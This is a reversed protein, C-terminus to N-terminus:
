GLAFAIEVAFTEGPALTRLGTEEDPRNIADTDHSVPEAAFYPKGEPVYVVLRRLAESGTLRVRVPGPALGIEAAGDWGAFLNDLVATGVRRGASHDWEPPIPTRETPIHDAGSRWVGSARFRLTAEPSRPFFPHLGLGVPAPARHRNTIAMSVSLGDGRLAYRITSDFAFPWGRAAAVTDPRWELSLRAAAATVEAVDWASTWGVGHIAHPEDGFNRALQYEQGAWAFRANRIRNSYPVLPYAALGRSVGHVLAEPDVRRLVHHPGVTWGAIAGGIEPAVVLSCEGANLTLM